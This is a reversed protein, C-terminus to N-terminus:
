SCMNHTLIINRVSEEHLLKHISLVPNKPYLIYFMFFFWIHSEVLVKICSKKWNWQQVTYVYEFEKLPVGCNVIRENGDNGEIQIWIVRLTSQALKICVHMYIGTFFKLTRCNNGQKSKIKKLLNFPFEYYDPKKFRGHAGIRHIM